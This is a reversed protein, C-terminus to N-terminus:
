GMDFEQSFIKLGLYFLYFAPVLILNDLKTIYYFWNLINAVPVQQTLSGASGPVLSVDLNLALFQGVFCNLNWLAFLLSAWSLFRLGRYKRLKEQNLEFYFFFMAVLFFLYSFQRIFLGEKPDVHPIYALAPHPFLWLFVLFGLTSLFMRPQMM